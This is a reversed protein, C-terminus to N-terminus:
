SRQPVERLESEPEHAAPSSCARRWSLYALVVGCIAGFYPVGLALLAKEAPLREFLLPSLVTLILAAQVAMLSFVSFVLAMGAKVAFARVHVMAVKVEARVLSIAGQVVEAPANAPSM